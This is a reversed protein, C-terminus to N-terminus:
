NNRGSLIIKILHIEERSFLAPSLDTAQTAYHQLETLRQLCQRADMEARRRNSKRRETTPMTSNHAKVRELWQPSGFAHPQKPREAGGRREIRSTHPDNPVKM